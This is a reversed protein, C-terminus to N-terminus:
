DYFALEAEFCKGDEVNGLLYYGDQQPATAIDIVQGATAEHHYLIGFRKIEREVLLDVPVSDCVMDAYLANNVHRNYDLDSYKVQRLHMTHASGPDKLRYGTITEGDNPNMPFGYEMFVSPRLIKRTEPNILAWAISVTLLHEGAETEFITDRIFQVGKPVRPLTTLTLREGFRPRRTIDIRMKAVLFVMGAKYLQNYDLGREALHYSGMQQSHRMINSLSIRQTVDCEYELVTIKTQFQEAM